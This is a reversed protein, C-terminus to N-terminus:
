WGAEGGREPQWEVGAVGSRAAPGTRRIIRLRGESEYELLECCDPLLRLASMTARNRERELELATRGQARVILYRWLGGCRGAIGRVFGPGGGLLMRVGGEAGGPVLSRGGPFLLLSRSFTTGCGFFGALVAEWFGHWLVGSSAVGRVIVLLVLSAVIAHGAALEHRVAPDLV